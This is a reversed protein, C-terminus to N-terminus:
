KEVMRAYAEDSRALAKEEQSNRSEYCAQCIHENVDFEDDVDEIIKLRSMAASTREALLEVAQNLREATITNLAFVGGKLIRIPGILKEYEPGDESCEERGCYDCRVRTIIEISM